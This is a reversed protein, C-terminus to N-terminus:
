KSHLADHFMQIWNTTCTKNMRSNLLRSFNERKYHSSPSITLTLSLDIDSMRKIEHTTNKNEDPVCTTGNYKYNLEQCFIDRCRGTSPDFLQGYQCFGTDM